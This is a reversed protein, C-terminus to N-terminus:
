SEKLNTTIDNMRCIYATLSELLDDGMAKQLSLLYRSVGLEKEVRNCENWIEESTM